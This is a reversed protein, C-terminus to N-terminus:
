NQNGRVSVPTSSTTTTGDGLQGSSNLGWCLAANSELAIGCTHRAGTRLGSFTFGGVVRVPTLQIPSLLGIGLQGDANGGWCYAAGDAV